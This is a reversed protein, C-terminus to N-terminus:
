TLDFGLTSMTEPDVGGYEKAPNRPAIGGRVNQRGLGDLIQLLSPNHSAESERAGVRAPIPGPHSVGWLEIAAIM